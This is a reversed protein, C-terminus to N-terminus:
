GDAAAHTQRSIGVANLEVRLAGVFRELETTHPLDRRQLAGIVSPPGPLEIPLVTLGAMPAAIMAVDRPLMTVFDSTAAIMTALPVDRTM